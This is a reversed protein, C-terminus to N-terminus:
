TRGLRRPIRYLYLMLLTAGALLILPIAELGAFVAVAGLWAPLAAILASKARVRGLQQWASAEEPTDLAKECAILAHKYATFGRLSVFLSLLAIIFLPMTFSGPQRGASFLEFSILLPALSVALLVWWQGALRRRQAFRSM